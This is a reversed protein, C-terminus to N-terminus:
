EVFVTAQMRLDLEGTTELADRFRDIKGAHHPFDVVRAGFIRYPPQTL